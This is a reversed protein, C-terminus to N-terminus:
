ESKVEKLKAEPYLPKISSEIVKKQADTLKGDKIDECLVYLSKDYDPFDFCAVGEQDRDTELVGTNHLIYHYGTDLGGCRRAQIFLSDKTFGKPLEKLVIYIFLTEERKRFVM